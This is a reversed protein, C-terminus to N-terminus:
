DIVTIIKEKKVTRSGEFSKSILTVSYNGKATYKIIPNKNTSTTPTGGEFSWEYSTATPSQEKFTVEEGIKVTTKDIVFKAAPALNLTEIKLWDILCEQTGTWNFSGAWNLERFGIIIKSEKHAIARTLSKTFVDDIFVDVRHPKWDITYTHFKDDIHSVKNGLVDKIPGSTTQSPTYDVENADKWTNIRFDTFGGNSPLIAHSEPSSKTDDAVLEIDIENFSGANNEWLYNWTFIFGVLGGDVVANKMSVEIRHGEKVGYYTITQYAKTADTDNSKDADIILHAYGDGPVIADWTNQLPYIDSKFSWYNGSTANPKGKGNFDEFLITKIPTGENVEIEEELINNTNSNTSNSCHTFLVLVSLILFYFYLRKM